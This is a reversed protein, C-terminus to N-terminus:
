VLLYLEKGSLELQCQLKVPFSGGYSKIFCSPAKAVIMKQIETELQDELLAKKVLKQSARPYTKCRIAASSFISSRFRSM